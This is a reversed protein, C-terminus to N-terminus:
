WSLCRASCTVEANGPGAIGTLSWGTLADFDVSCRGVETANDVAYLEVRTLFCMRNPSNDALAVTTGVDLDTLTSEPGVVM